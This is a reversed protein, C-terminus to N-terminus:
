GDPFVEKLRALEGPDLPGPEEGRLAGALAALEAPTASWFTEPAWGFALGAVGALRTAACAFDLGQQAQRLRDQAGGCAADFPM